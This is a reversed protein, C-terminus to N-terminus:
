NYAYQLRFVKWVEVGDEMVQAYFERGDPRFLLKSAKIKHYFAPALRDSKLERIWIEDKNHICLFEGGPLLITEEWKKSGRTWENIMEEPAYIPNEVDFVVTARDECDEIPRRLNCFDLQAFFLSKERSTRITCNEYFREFDPDVPFCGKLKGTIHNLRGIAFVVPPFEQEEGEPNEDDTFPIFEEVVEYDEPDFKASASLPLAISGDILYRGEESSFCQRLRHEKGTRIEREILWNDSDKYLLKESYLDLDMLVPAASGTDMAPPLVETVQGELNYVTCELTDSFAYFKGNGRFWVKRASAPFRIERILTGDPEVVKAGEAPNDFSYLIYRNGSYWVSEHSSDLCCQPLKPTTGAPRVANLKIKKYVSDIVNEMAFCLDSGDFGWLNLSDIYIVRAALVNDDNIANVFRRVAPEIKQEELIARESSKIKSVRWATPPLDEQTSWQKNQIEEIIEDENKKKSRLEYLARNLFSDKHNPDLRLAEDWLAEAAGGQKLDLFSLAYNNLSDASSGKVTYSLRPYEKDTVQRYIAELESLIPSFDQVAGPLPKDSSAAEGRNQICRTLLDRMAPPVPIRCSSFLASDKAMERAQEGTQWTRGGCYMELVTLAWAYVDMWAQATDAETQEKPCYEPTYGLVQDTLDRTTSALGFDSVKATWNDGLLINGPKVDQHLLGQRHSYELGRASQIAIDLIRAQIEDIAGIYLSDDRIRDRLSGGNMWESFITPVGGIERVYYCSVVCPHLVLRIWNECEKVFAIKRRESGEAFFRPQPRKMALDMRWTKHHVRWVNGMGGSIAESTVKYTGLLEDDVKIRENSIVANKKNYEEDFIHSEAESEYADALSLEEFVSMKSLPNSISQSNDESLRSM